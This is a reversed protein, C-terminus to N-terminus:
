FERVATKILEDDYAGARITLAPAAPTCRVLSVSPHRLTQGEIWSSKSVLSSPRLLSTATSAM